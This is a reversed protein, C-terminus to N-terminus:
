SRRRPVVRSLALAKLAVHGADSPDQPPHPEAFQRVRFKRFLPLMDALNAALYTPMAAGTEGYLEACIHPGGLVSRQLYKRETLLAREVTTDLYDPAVGRPSSAFTQRIRTAFSEVLAPAVRGEEGVTQSAADLVDKLKKDAPAFHSAASILARLSEVPDFSLLLDGTVVCLPRVLVGDEDIAETVLLHIADPAVPLVRSLARRVDREARTKDQPREAETGTVWDGTKPPDRLLEAWAVQERVRTPASEDFWVLDLYENSPPRQQAQARPAEIPASRPSTAVAADSVAAVGSFAAHSDHHPALAPQPAVPAPAAFPTASMRAFASPQAALHRTPEATRAPTREPIPTPIVPAAPPTASWEPAAPTPPYTPQRVPPPGFAPPPGFSPATPPANMPLSVAPQAPQAPHVAARHVPMTGRPDSSSMAVSEDATPPDEIDFPPSTEHKTM